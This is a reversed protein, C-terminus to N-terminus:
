TLHHSTIHHSTIHPLTLHAVQDMPSIHMAMDIMSYMHKERLFYNAARENYGERTQLHIEVEGLRSSRISHADDSLVGVFPQRDPPAHARVLPLVLEAVSPQPDYRGRPM